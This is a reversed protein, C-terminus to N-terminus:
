RRDQPLRRVARHRLAHGSEHGAPLGRLSGLRFANWVDALNGPAFGETRLYRVFNGPLYRRLHASHPSHFALYSLNQLLALFKMRAGAASGGAAASPPIHPVAVAATFVGGAKSATRM